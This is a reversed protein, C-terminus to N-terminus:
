SIIVNSCDDPLNRQHEVNFCLEKIKYKPRKPPGWVDTYIMKEIKKNLSQTGVESRIVRNITILM